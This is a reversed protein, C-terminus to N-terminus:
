RTESNLVIVLTKFGIKKVYNGANDLVPQGLRNFTPVLGRGADLVQDYVFSAANETLRVCGGSARKGLLNETGVPAQHMAIGENFFVSYPMKTKWLDSKHDIDTWSVNFYGTGTTSYYSFKPGHHFISAREQEVQERGTSTKATFILQGNKYIKLSQATLGQTAKDIVIVNTFDNVWHGTSFYVEDFEVGAPNEQAIYKLFDSKNATPTGKFISFFKAEAKPSLLFFLTLSLFLSKMIVGLNKIQPTDLM